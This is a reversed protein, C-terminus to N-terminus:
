ELYVTDKGKQNLEVTIHEQLTTALSIGVFDAKIPFRNHNRDVLVVTSIKKVKEALFPELGYILTKGSNLVDDVVVIVKNKFDDAKVDVKVKSGIPNEKNVTVKSLRVKIDSIEELQKAIRQALIFGNTVIGAIIIEKEEFNNEYIQFAIRNIRQGIELHNLIQTNTVTMVVIKRLLLSFDIENSCCLMRWM